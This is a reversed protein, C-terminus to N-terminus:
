DDSVMVDVVRLAQGGIPRLQYSGCDPCPVARGPLEVARGCSLCWALGPQEDLDLRAGDLLTGPALCQLAFRLAEPDVCCFGGIEVHVSLVRAFRNRRALDEILELVNGALSLEHM